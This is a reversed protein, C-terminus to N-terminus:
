RQCQGAPLVHRLAAEEQQMGTAFLQNARM